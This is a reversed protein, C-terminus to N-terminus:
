KFCPFGRRSITSKLIYLFIGRPITMFIVTKIERCKWINSQILFNQLLVEIWTSCLSEGLPRGMKLKLVKAFFQM